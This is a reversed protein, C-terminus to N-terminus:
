SDDVDLGWYYKGSTFAQDGQAAFYNSRDDNLSADQNYFRFRFNRVEHFLKIDHNSVENNFSIEIQYHNDRDTLGTITRISLELHVPWPMHLQVSCSRESKHCMDMLEEHMNKLQKRKQVMKAESRKLQQGEKKLHDLYQQNMIIRDKNLNRKNKQIKDWVSRMQKVLKERSLAAGEIPCHRHARQEQSTACLSCLLSRDVSCRRETRKTECIQEKSGLFQQLSKRALSVMKKVCIDTEFEQQHHNGASLANAPTQAGEWSLCLCPRCFSHGCGITVPDVLYNLCILCTLERQFDQPIDSDM